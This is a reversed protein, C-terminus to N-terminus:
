NGGGIPPYVASWDDVQASLEDCLLTLRQDVDVTALLRQKLAISLPATFSVVDTFVSASCEYGLFRIFRDSVSGDLLRRLAALVRARRFERLASGGIQQVDDLLEARAQRYMTGAALEGHLRVRAQGRLVLEFRGDPLRRENLISGYCAVAHIPVPELGSDLPSAPAVPEAAPLVMTIARDAGLADETLQRYRPEFIHLPLMAYPFLVVGPLPFLRVIGDTPPLSVANSM